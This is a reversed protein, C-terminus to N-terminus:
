PHFESAAVSALTSVSTTTSPPPTPPAKMAGLSFVGALMVALSAVLICSGGVKSGKLISLLGSVFAVGGSALEILLAIKAPLWTANLNIAGVAVIAILLAALGVGNALNGRTALEEPGGGLVKLAVDRSPVITWLKDLGALTLVEQVLPHKNAVVLQGNREKVSKYIRVVLAVQASGMFDLPTLDVLLRPNELSALRAVVDAGVKEIEVWPVHNLSPLLAVIARNHDFEIRYTATESM